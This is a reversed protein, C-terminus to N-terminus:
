NNVPIIYIKSEDSEDYVEECQFDCLPFGFSILEDFVKKNSILKVERCGSRLKITGILETIDYLTEETIM